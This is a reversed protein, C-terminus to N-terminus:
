VSHLSKGVSCHCIIWCLGAEQIFRSVMESNLPLFVLKVVCFGFLSKGDEVDM